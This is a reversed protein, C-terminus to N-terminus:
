MGHDVKVGTNNQLYHCAESLCLTYLVAASSVSSKKKLIYNQSCHKERDKGTKKLNLVFM